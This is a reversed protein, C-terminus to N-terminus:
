VSEYEHGDNDNRGSLLVHRGLLTDLGGDFFDGLQALQCRVRGAQRIRYTLDLSKLGLAECARIKVQQV